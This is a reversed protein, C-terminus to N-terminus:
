LGANLRIEVTRPRGVSAGSFFAGKLLYKHDFLNEVYIEPRLLVNGVELLYGASTNVTFNPDVHISRNFDFLGRGYTAADPEQGNTLGSGYLGTATAFLHRDAYSVSAVGSLRQDHDLDFYGPPLDVPFFGGTIPGRGYAHNLALNVYGSLPGPPRVELVTEVGNIWVRDINVSTIITSGPVTNDDIGPSSRKHYGSLKVVLGAPFRHTVGVEFFHDREPLTPQAAVGGQAVSTIARLDEVNTPIFLRGYYAWLSTQADPFFSLKVRPSVQNQSGAFPAEHNDFRVGTRLEWKETPAIVTQAYVWEDNGKLDSNSAPGPNGSADLTLFDEHGRTFSALGGMKFQLRESLRYSYDAKIGTTNFNRDESLNFATTDPFFVFSPTDNVGPTYALSGRRHFAAVFLDSGAAQTSGPFQHRWGLNVFSNMDQQHDDLIVVGTSDYPVEFQTRSWNADLNVVDASSPLFQLKGFSFLDTGHNHFNIADRTLTDFVVPEQRMDTERRTGSVFWGFKGINQSADVTQGNSSFSGGFGSADGRLGGAPIRTNVDVIAANKNGFEADWGGTQFSIQNVVNPDFLENLSGSIGAPVPVGDIYYTYEAHQGRIHVEGTPARAAGAVSQQVIQSTTQSPAGHYVDQKFIQNGTRTDVAVPTPATAEIEQLRVVSPSLRISVETERGGPGVTIHTRTPRFGLLRVEVDYEGDPLNHIRYRGNADTETRAVVQGGRFVLVDSGTLAQGSTSDRVEGTIDGGAGPPTSPVVPARSTLAVALLFALM